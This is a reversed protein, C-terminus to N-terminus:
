GNLIPNLELNAQEDVLHKMALNWIIKSVKKSDVLGPYRRESGAFIPM